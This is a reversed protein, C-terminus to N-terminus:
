LILVVILFIFLLIYIFFTIRDVAVALLYWDTVPKKRKEQPRREQEVSCDQMEESNGDLFNDSQYSRKLTPLCLLTGPKGTLAKTVFWPLPTRSSHQSLNFTCVSVIMSIAVLILNYAHFKVIIPTNASVTPLKQAFYLLYLTSVIATVGSLIFKEKATPALWFVSLTSFISIIVPIILITHHATSRRKVTISYDLRYYPEPCCPYTLTELKKDAKVMEWEGAMDGSTEVAKAFTTLNIENGSYTWSGFLLDCSQTDYPWYTFDFDCYVSLLAPPVWLVRGDHWVICHTNGYYDINNPQASNYLVIDPQWIEHDAIRLQTMNGYDSVNWKLKEDRWEMKNWANVTMMSKAEDIEVYQITLDMTVYTANFHQTPRAFKDYKMLLDHKLIDTFTSNWLRKKASSLPGQRHVLWHPDDDFGHVPTSFVALAALVFLLMLSRM